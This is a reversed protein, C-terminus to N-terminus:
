IERFSVFTSHQSLKLCKSNSTFNMSESDNTYNALMSNITIVGSAAQQAQLATYNVMCIIAVSM